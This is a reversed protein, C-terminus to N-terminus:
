FSGTQGKFNVFDANQPEFDVMYGSFAFIDAGKPEFEVLEGFVMLFRLM